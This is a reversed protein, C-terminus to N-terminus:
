GIPPAPRTVRWRPDPKWRSWAPDWWTEGAQLMRGIEDGLAVISDAGAPTFRGSAVRMELLDRDKLTWAGDPEIVIDLELDQTDYGAETRRFPEQPNLYSVAFDREGGDWFHWIAYSDGRRQLM